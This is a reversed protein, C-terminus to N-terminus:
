YCIEDSELIKIFSEIENQLQVWKTNEIVKNGEYKCLSSGQLAILAMLEGKCKEWQQACLIAILREENM